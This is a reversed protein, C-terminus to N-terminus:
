VIADIENIVEESLLYDSVSVIDKLQEMSSVSILAIGDLPNSTIYGNVVATPSVKNKQCYNKIYELKKINVPTAIRKRLFSDIHDIGQYFAKQFFGKCQSTYAMGLLQHHLMYEYTEKNMHTTTPDDWMSETYEALSWWTQIIRFPEMKHKAAYENAAIIRDIKWNAIGITSINGIEKIVQMTEVIEEVARGPEDRHLLYIDIYDTQLAELSEKVEVQLSDRSLNSIFVNGKNRVGGKTCIFIENRNGRDAMWEGICRESMGRGNEVWEYYNRATDVVNGGNHYFYDLMEFASEKEIRTGFRGTGLGIQSINREFYNLMKM